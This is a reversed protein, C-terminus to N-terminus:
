FLIKLVLQVERPAGASLVKGAAPDQINSDPLGFAPTNTFNFFEGRFQARIGEHAHSLVFTKFLSFDWNRLPPGNLIDRAASGYTYLAPVKFASLDFWGSITPNALLGSGIRDARQPRGTNARDTSIGPTFPLGDRLTIINAVSWGGLTESLLGRRNALFPLAYTMSLTFSSPINYTSIGWENHLNYPNEVAATSDLSDNDLSKSWTYAGLLSLGHWDRTEATVQLANYSSDATNQYETGAGWFTNFRRSQIVGPGPMPVNQPLQFNLHTGKSGVYGAQVSLLGSIVKQLTFNWEQIYPNPFYPDLKSFSPATFFLQGTALPPFLNAATKTPIPTTNFNSLEDVIFPPNIIGVTNYNEQPLPYFIGYGARAVLGHGFDYAAGTRPGFSSADLRQLSPGLGVQCSPVIMSQFYPLAFKEVQQQNTNIKCNSDTAVFIKDLVIDTSAMGNGLETRPHILDYRLGGILTLRRTAKWSDQFFMDQTQEYQGFLNRPFDRYGLFPVGYLFDGFGNGTYTGTFSLLGRSYAGNSLAASWWMADAGAELTHKGKIVTLADGIIFPNFIHTFPNYNGGNIGAYGSINLSPFGPDELSTLSYGGIGAQLTYNTGLGQQASHGAQRSYSVRAENVINSGLSHTWELAALQQLYNAAVGGNTPLAGPTYFSGPQVSYTFTFSDSPRLQYDLRVDGQNYYNRARANILFTGSPTNPEPIFRLFFSTQPSFQAQPIVDPTLPLGTYPNTLQKVGTFDGGREAVTPVVSNFTEGNLIRTGQFDGFFFAKNTKIPGGFTFGFQNQNLQPTTKAFFNRTDLSTNRFFEFVDGHFQNTGSKLVANVIEGGNGYAASMSNSEIKFEQLADPAPTYGSGSNFQDQVNAGDILYMVASSRTGNVVLENDPLDSTSGSLVSAYVGPTLTALQLYNRGNLPLNVVASGTMVTGVSATQTQLLAAASKVTVHQTVAGLRLTMDVRAIQAVDLRIASRTETVFGTRSVTVDYTGPLLSTVVYNGDANTSTAHEVKTSENAVRVTAAAIVAGSPDTVLGTIQGFQAVQAFATVADLCVLCTVVLIVARWPSGTPRQFTFGLSNRTAPM